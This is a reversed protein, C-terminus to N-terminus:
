SFGSDQSQLSPTRLSSACAICNQRPTQRQPCIDGSSRTNRSVG